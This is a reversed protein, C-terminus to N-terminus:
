KTITPESEDWQIEDILKLANEKAKVIEQETWIPLRRFRIISVRERQGSVTDRYGINWYFIAGKKLLESDSASIEEIPIEAKEKHGEETLDILDVIILDDKIDIVSGEWKQLSVFYDKRSIVRNYLPIPRNAKQYLEEEQGSQDLTEALDNGAYINTPTVEFEIRSALYKKILDLPLEKFDDFNILYNPEIYDKDLKVNFFVEDNMDINRATALSSM